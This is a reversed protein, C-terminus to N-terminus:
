GHVPEKAHPTGAPVPMQEVVDQSEPRQAAYHLLLAAIRHTCVREPYRAFWICDCYRDDKEIYYFKGEESQSEVCVTANDIWFAKQQEVLKTARDIQKTSAREKLLAKVQEVVEPDVHKTPASM